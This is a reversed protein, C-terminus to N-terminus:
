NIHKMQILHPIREEGRGGSGACARKSKERKKQAKTARKDAAAATRQANAESDELALVSDLWGKQKTKQARASRQQAKGKYIMRSGEAAKRAAAGWKNKAKRRRKNGRSKNKNWISAKRYFDRAQDMLADGRKKQSNAAKILSEGASKKLAGDIEKKELYKGGKQIAGKLTGITGEVGEKTCGQYLASLILLSLVIIFIKLSIKTRRTM